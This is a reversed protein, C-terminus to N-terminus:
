SLHSGPKFRLLHAINPKGKNLCNCLRRTNGDEPPKVDCRIWEPMYKYGECVGTSNIYSPQYEKTHNASNEEKDCRQEMFGNFKDRTAATVIQPNCSLNRMLCANDCDETNEGFYYGSVSVFKSINFPM